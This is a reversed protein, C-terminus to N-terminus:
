SGGLSTSSFRNCSNSISNTPIPYAMPSRKFWPCSARSVSGVISWGKKHGLIPYLAEMRNELPGSFDPVILEPYSQRIVSAKYTQSSSELGHLFIM